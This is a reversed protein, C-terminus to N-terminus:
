KKYIKNLLPKLPTFHTIVVGLIAGIVAQLIQYPLKLMAYEPTSYVFARGLSYGAVMIVAGVFVALVSMLLKPQKKYGQSIFAIVVAQLGHTILSIFMPPPYFFMDGFFAGMGGIIFASLPDFILAATCIVIDNLYFHGGPVPISLISHSLVINYATFMAVLCLKKTSFYHSNM